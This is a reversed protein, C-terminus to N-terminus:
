CPHRRKPPASRKSLDESSRQKEAAEAMPGLQEELVATLDRVRDMNEATRRLKGLGEEKRM